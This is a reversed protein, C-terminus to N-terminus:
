KGIEGSKEIRHSGLRERIEDLGEDDAPGSKPFGSYVFAEHKYSYWFGVALLQAGIELSVFCYVWYGIIESKCKLRSVMKYIDEIDQPPLPQNSQRYLSHLMIFHEMITM